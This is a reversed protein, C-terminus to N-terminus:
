NNTDYFTDVDVGLWQTLREGSKDAWPKSSLHVKMGPAQGIVVIKSDRHATLVPNVGNTLFPACTTCEQIKNLLIPLPHDM